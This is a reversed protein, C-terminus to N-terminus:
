DYQWLICREHCIGFIYSTKSHNTFTYSRLFQYFIWEEFAVPSCVVSCHSKFSFPIHSSGRKLKYQIILPTKLLSQVQALSLFVYWQTSLSFNLYYFITQEETILENLMWYNICSIICGTNSLYIYGAIVDLSARIEM